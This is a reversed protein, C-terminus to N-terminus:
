GVLLHAVLTPNSNRVLGFVDVLVGMSIGKEQAFIISEM